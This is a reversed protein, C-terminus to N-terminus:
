LLGETISEERLVVFVNGSATHPQQRALVLVHFVSCERRGRRLVPMENLQLSWVQLACWPFTGTRSSGSLRNGHVGAGIM